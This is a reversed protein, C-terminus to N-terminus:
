AGGRTANVSEAPTIEQLELDALGWNELNFIVPARLTRVSKIFWLVDDYTLLPIGRQLVGALYREQGEPTWGSAVAHEIHYIRLPELLIEEEAGAYHASYCFLSDIHMSFQDLEAYGRLDFWHQRSMLTFDGCAFTHLFPPRGLAAIEKRREPTPAAPFLPTTEPSGVIAQPLTAWYECGPAPPAAGVANRKRSGSCLAFVRFHLDRGDSRLPAGGGEASFCLTLIEGEVTPASFEFYTLGQVPQRAVTQGDATGVTLVFPNYGVAPGPELVMGFTQNTHAARVTVQTEAAVWRYRESGHDELYSWGTGPWFELGAEFIDPGRAGLLRFTRRMLGLGRSFVAASGRHRRLSFLLRGLTPRAQSMSLGLPQPSRDEVPAWDCRFVRFNLIRHDNAVALGGGPTILRFVRTEAGRAPPVVVQILTRREIQFDAVKAGGADLLHLAAPLREIAPGPELEIELVAGGKPVRAVIEAEGAIWRFPESPDWKEVPFWGDGFHIGSERRVIDIAETERRGSSNLPFPGERAFIRILNSRCYALQEDITGDVPVDSMVDTRDIRYMKGHELRHAALFEMLEDSFIIDINTALIYEGRARRIGVNKAIMQYLPLALAHAYRAHVEAPVEIIRVHCPGTDVPWRLATALSERDAPPNWEVVILESPLNHRKAQNIWADVFVQMRRLLSGGHDDNRATVVVSLYPSDPGKESVRRQSLQM